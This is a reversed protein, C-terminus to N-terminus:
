YGRFANIVIFWLVWFFILAIFLPSWTTLWSVFIETMMIMKKKEKSRVFESIAVIVVAIVFAIILEKM